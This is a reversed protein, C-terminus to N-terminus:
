RYERLHGGVGWSAIRGSSDVVDLQIRLVDESDQTRAVSVDARVLSMVGSREICPTTDGRNLM